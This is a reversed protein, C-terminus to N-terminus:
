ADTTGKAFAALRDALPEIEAPNRRFTNATALVMGVLRAEEVSLVNPADAVVYRKAVPGSEGLVTPTKSLYPRGAVGIWVEDPWRKESAAM